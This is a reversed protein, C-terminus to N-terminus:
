TSERQMKAEPLRLLPLVECYDLDRQNVFSVAAHGQRIERAVAALAPELAAAGMIAVMV